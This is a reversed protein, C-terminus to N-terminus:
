GAATKDSTGSTYQRKPSPEPVLMVSVLPFLRVPVALTAGVHCVVEGNSTGAFDTVGAALLRRKMALAEQITVAALVIDHSAHNLVEEVEPM